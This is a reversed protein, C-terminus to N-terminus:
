CKKAKHAVNLCNKVIKWMNLAINQRRFTKLLGIFERIVFKFLEVKLSSTAVRRATTEGPRVSRPSIVARLTRTAQSNDYFHVTIGKVTPVTPERSFFFVCQHKVELKTM